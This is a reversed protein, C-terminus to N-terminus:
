VYCCCALGLPYQTVYNVDQVLGLSLYHVATFFLSTPLTQPWALSPKPTLTDKKTPLSAIIYIICDTTCEHSLPGVEHPLLHHCLLFTLVKHWNFAEAVYVTEM